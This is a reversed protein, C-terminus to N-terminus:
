SKEFLSRHLQHAGPRRACARLGARAGARMPKASGAAGRVRPLLPPLWFVHSDRLHVPLLWGAFLRAACVPRLWCGPPRPACGGMCL